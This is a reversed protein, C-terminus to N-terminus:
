SGLERRRFLDRLKKFCYGEELGWNERERKGGKRRGGKESFGLYFKM